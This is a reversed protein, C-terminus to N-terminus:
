SRDEANKIMKRIRAAEERSLKRNNLLSLLLGETSGDFVNQLVQEVAHNQAVEREVAAQYQFAEGAEVIVLWGKEVLRTMMTHVTNRSVSRVDQLSKLVDGVTCQGFEWVITMIELQSESLPPLSHDDM